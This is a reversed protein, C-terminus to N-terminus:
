TVDSRSLTEQYVFGYLVHRGSISPNKKLDHMEQDTAGVGVDVIESMNLFPYASGKRDEQNNDGPGVLECFILV